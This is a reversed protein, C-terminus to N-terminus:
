KNPSKYLESLLNLFGKLEPKYREVINLLASFNKTDCREVIKSSIMNLRNKRYDKYDKISPDIYSSFNDLLVCKSIKNTKLLQVALNTGIFGLGGTILAVKMQIKKQVM